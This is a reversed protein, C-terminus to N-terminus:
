ESFTAAAPRLPNKVYRGWSRAGGQTKSAPTEAAVCRITGSVHNLIPRGRATRHHAEADTLTRDRAVDM